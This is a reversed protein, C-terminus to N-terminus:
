VRFTKNITNRVYHFLCRGDYQTLRGIKLKHSLFNGKIPTRCGDSVNMSRETCPTSERLADQEYDFKNELTQMISNIHISTKKNFGAKFVFKTCLMWWNAVELTSRNQNIICRLFLASIRQHSSRQNSFKTTELWRTCVRIKWVLWIM